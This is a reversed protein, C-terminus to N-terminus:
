GKKLFMDFCKNTISISGKTIQENKLYRCYDEYSFDDLAYDFDITLFELKQFKEIIKSNLKIKEASTESNEIYIIENETNNYIFPLFNKELLDLLFETENEDFNSHNKGKCCRGCGDKNCDKPKDAGGCGGNCHHTKENKINM